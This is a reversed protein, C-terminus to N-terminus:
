LSISDNIQKAYYKRVITDRFPVVIPIFAATTIFFLIAYILDSMDNMLGPAILPLFLIALLALVIYKSLSLMKQPKDKVISTYVTGRVRVAHIITLSQTLSYNLDVDDDLDILNAIDKELKVNFLEIEDDIVLKEIIEVNVDNPPVSSKQLATIKGHIIM